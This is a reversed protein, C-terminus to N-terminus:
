SPSEPCVERCASGAGFDSAEVRCTKYRSKPLGGRKWAAYHRSCYGKGGNATQKCGTTRCNHTSPM